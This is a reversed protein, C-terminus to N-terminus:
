QIWSEPNLKDRNKWVEFHISSKSADDPDPALRGLADGGKVADGVKVSPSAINGYVTYYEGHNVIVVTSFGPIMYVGSVKGTYVAKASAGAAVEADIGPNDYMVDPLDPLAHRGFHGTIRFTGAVPRPLSGRMSAFGGGATSAPKASNASPAPSASATEGASRPKRKRAAAYDKQSGNKDATKKEAPKKEATKKETGKKEASKDSKKSATKEEKAPTTEAEKKAAEAAALRKEEAAAERRRQEEAAAEKRRQEEAAKRQEEAILAAVQNRLQNVEAQKRSLHNQLAAGNAKLDAVIKTQQSKQTNLRTQAAVQRGLMVDYDSKTRALQENEKKLSEVTKQIEATQEDKWKSFEKLYRMRREAQSLNTSSFLFALKSNRKRSGRNKKVASLYEARLRDLRENQEKIKAQLADIKKQLARVQNRLAGVEKDTVKIDDEIKSLDALNKKISADNQRIEEQTRAIEQKANEQRRQLDASTEKKTSNRRSKPASNKKSAPKKKNKTAKKSGQSTAVPMAIADCIPAVCMAAVIICITLRSAVARSLRM